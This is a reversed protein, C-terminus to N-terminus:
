RTRPVIAKLMAAHLKVKGRLCSDCREELCGSQYGRGPMCTPESFRSVKARAVVNSEINKLIMPVTMVNQTTENHIKTLMGVNLPKQVPSRKGAGQKTFSGSRSIAAVPSFPLCTSNCLPYDGVHDSVLTHNYLKFDGNSVHQRIISANCSQDFTM